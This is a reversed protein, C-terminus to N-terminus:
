WFIESPQPRKSPRDVKTIPATSESAQGRAHETKSPLHVNPLLYQTLVVLRCKEFFLEGFIPKELRGGPFSSESGCYFHKGGKYTCLM